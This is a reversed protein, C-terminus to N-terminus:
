RVWYPLHTRDHDEAKETPKRPDTISKARETGKEARIREGEVRETEAGEDESESEGNSENQRVAM